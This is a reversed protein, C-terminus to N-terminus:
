SRYGTVLAAVTAELEADTLPARTLWARQWVLGALTDLLLRGDSGPPLEGRAVAREVVVVTTQRRVDQARALREALDADQAAEAVALALLGGLDSQVARVLAHMLVRLDEVVTGTDPVSVDATFAHAVLDVLLAPKSPWRRYISDLGVGASAAIESMTVAAFGKAVFAERAARVVRETVDGSRPRGSARATTVTM